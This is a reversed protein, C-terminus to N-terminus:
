FFFFFFSQPGPGHVVNLHEFYLSCDTADLCSCTMFFVHELQSDFRSHKNTLNSLQFQHRETQAIVATYEM